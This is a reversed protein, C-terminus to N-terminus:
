NFLSSSYDMWNIHHRVHHGKPLHRSLNMYLVWFCHQNKSPFFATFSISVLPPFDLNKRAKIYLPWTIRRWSELSEQEKVHESCWAWSDLCGGGGMLSRINSKLTHLFFFGKKYINRLRSKIDINNSITFHKSKHLNVQYHYLRASLGGINTYKWLMKLFCDKLAHVERIVQSLTASVWNNNNQTECTIGKM